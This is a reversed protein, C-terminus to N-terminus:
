QIDHVDWDTESSRGKYPVYDMWQEVGLDEIRADYRKGSVDNKDIYPPVIFLTKKLEM